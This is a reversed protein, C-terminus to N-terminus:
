REPDLLPLADRAVGRWIPSASHPLRAWHARDMAVVDAGLGVQLLQHAWTEALPEDAAVVLLDVDSLGDWDGRARSGFLWIQDPRRLLPNSADLVDHLRNRLYALWERHRRERIAAFSTM